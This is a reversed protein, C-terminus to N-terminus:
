VVSFREHLDHIVSEIVPEWLRSADQRYLKVSSYWPSDNRGLMWRYDPIFPLLLWTEKGMAGSLHAVSTDVTVVLDLGEILEATDAFDKISQEAVIVNGISKIIERDAKRLGKQLAIFDLDLSFLQRFSNIPISRNRDNKHEQNGSWVVGVLGRHGLGKLLPPHSRNRPRIYKQPSPITELNTKFVLPLSMLPCIFDIGKEEEGTSIVKVRDDLESLLRKLPAQVELVVNAGKDSLVKAYRSFQITDGYGQEPYVLVKKGAINGFTLEPVQTERRISSVEKAKFRWHYLEFGRDYQGLLIFLLSKNWFAEALDAKLEIARDYSALAEDFRSLEQLLNGRNMHTEALDPKLAIARDHNELAENFRQLECLVNGRNMHAEALDVRLAIAHNHSELAEQYRKLEQLIIGRNMLAGAFNAKLKIASDHSELAEEFRQLAHLTNGRNMHAEALDPKLAVARDHSALAEFFRELSHLTNGRNMYAEAFDAQLEIACEHTALAEGFRELRQLINGRNMRAKATKPELIVARDYYLLAEKPAGQEILVNGLNLPAEHLTPNLCIARRSEKLAAPYKALEFYALGLNVNAQAYHPQLNLTIRLFHSALEPQHEFRFTNGLNYYAETYSPELVIAKRLEGFAGSILGGAALLLSRNNYIQAINPQIDQAFKYHKLAGNTNGMQHFCLAVAFHVIVQNPNLTLSKQHLKAAYVHFGQQMLQDALNNIFGPDTQIPLPLANCLAEMSDTLGKSLDNLALKFQTELM